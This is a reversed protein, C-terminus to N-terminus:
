SGTRGSSDRYVWRSATTFNVGLGVISGAGVAFLPLWVSYPFLFGILAYTAYNALAGLSMASLYRLFEAMTPAAAHAGFTWRRNILWTVVVAALFSVVRGAYWGAGAYLTAYLVGADVIFGVAGAVVFRAFRGTIM